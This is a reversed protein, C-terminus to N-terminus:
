RERNLRRRCRRSQFSLISMMQTIGYRAYRTTRSLRLMRRGHAYIEASATRAISSSAAHGGRMASTEYVACNASEGMGIAVHEGMFSPFCRTAAMHRESRNQQRNSENEPAVEPPKPMAAPPHQPSHRRCSGSAYWPARKSFNCNAARYEAVGVHALSSSRRVDRCFLM